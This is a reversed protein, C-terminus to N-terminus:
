GSVAIVTREAEGGSCLEAYIGLYRMVMRRTSYQVARRRALRGMVRRRRPDAILGQITAALTAHDDPPVFCAAGQWLERLSPIDGLVLACGSLGAELVSLGFPEYRAPLVYISARGYWQALEEPPLCGLATVGPMAAGGGEPHRTEGAVHVPWELQGSVAALAGLNKAADWMRGAALVHEGGDTVPYQQPIRGNHVVGCRPLPGYERQLAELMFRSPAVVADAGQLGRRVRARYPEWQAPPAESRVARWWSLVCSHGVVLCPVGWDCHGHSYHNLHVLDPRYRRALQLLWREARDVDDWPSEMWELRFRSECLILGPVARAQHRQAPSPRAGLTALVVQVGQSRLGHALELAYMWVGGVTDTSM